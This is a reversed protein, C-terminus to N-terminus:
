PEIELISGDNINASVSVTQGKFVLYDGKVSKLIIGKPVRVFEWFIGTSTTDMNVAPSDTAVRSLYDGKNSKLRFKVTNYKEIEWQAFETASNLVQPRTYSANRALYANGEVIKLKGKASCKDLDVIIRDVTDGSNHIPILGFSVANTNGSITDTSSAAFLYDQKFNSKILALENGKDELSWYVGEGGDSLDINNDINSRNLYKGNWSRFVYENLNLRIIVWESKFDAKAQRILKNEDNATIFDGSPSKLYMVRSCVGYISEKLTANLQTKSNTSNITSSKKEISFTNSNTNSAAKLSKQIVVNQNIFIILLLYSLTQLNTM